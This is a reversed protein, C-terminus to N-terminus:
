ADFAMQVVCESRWQLAASHPDALDCSCVPTVEV